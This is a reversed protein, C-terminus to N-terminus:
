DLCDMSYLSIWIQIGRADLQGMDVCRKVINTCGSFDASSTALDALCTFHSSDAAFFVASSTLLIHTDWWPPQAPSTYKQTLRWTDLSPDLIFRMVCLPRPYPNKMQLNTKRPVGTNTCTAIPAYKIHAHTAHGGQKYSIDEGRYNNETRWLSPQRTFFPSPPLSSSGWPSVSTSSSCLHTRQSHHRYWHLCTCTCKPTRSLCRATDKRWKSGACGKSVLTVLTSCKTWLSSMTSLGKGNANGM